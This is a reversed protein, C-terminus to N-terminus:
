QRRGYEAIGSLMFLFVAIPIFTLNVSISTSTYGSITIGGLLFSACIGLAISFIGSVIELIGATKLAKSCRVSFPSDNIVEKLARKIMAIFIVTLLFIFVVGGLGILIFNKYGLLMQTTLPSGNITIAQGIEAPLEPGILPLAYGHLIEMAAAMLWFVIAALVNLFKACGKMIIIEKWFSIRVDQRGPCTIATNHRGYEIMGCPRKETKGHLNIEKMKTDSTVASQPLHRCFRRRGSSSVTYLQLSKESSGATLPLLASFYASLGYLAPFKIHFDGRNKISYLDSRVFTM